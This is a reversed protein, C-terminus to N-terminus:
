TLVIVTNYCLLLVQAGYVRWVLQRKYKNEKVNIRSKQVAILETNFSFM